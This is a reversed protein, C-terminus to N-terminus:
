CSAVEWGLGVPFFGQVPPPQDERTRLASEFWALFHIGKAKPDYEIRVRKPRRFLVRGLLGRLKNILPSLDISNTSLRGNRILRRTRILGATRLWAILRDVTKEDCRSMGAIWRASPFIPGRYYVAMQLMLMLADVRKGRDRNVFHHMSWLLSRITDTNKFFQEIKM